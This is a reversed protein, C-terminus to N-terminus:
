ICSHSTYCWYLDTIIWVVQYLAVYIIKEARRLYCVARGVQENCPAKKHCWTSCLVLPREHCPPTMGADRRLPEANMQTPQHCDMDKRVSRLQEWHPTGPPPTLDLSKIAEQSKPLLLLLTLQPCQFLTNWVTHTMIAVSKLLQINHIYQVNKQKYNNQYM